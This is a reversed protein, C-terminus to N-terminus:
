PRDQALIWAGAAAFDPAVFDAGASDREEAGHGTLVLIGGALGARRGAEIDRAGDGIIFSRGLDLGHDAAAELLMGPAPKRRESAADPADACFYVADLSSPGLQRQLEAQVREFDAAAFYGRGIGSQNTTLVLRYGAAKLRALAPVVGPYIAVLAPDSCYGPDEMLTGDRDLFVAKLGPPMM